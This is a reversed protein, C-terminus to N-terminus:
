ASCWAAATRDAALTTGYLFGDSAQLLAGAPLAGGAFTEDDSTFPHVTYLGFWEESRDLEFITGLQIPENSWLGGYDSTTGRFTTPSTQILAGLPTDGNGGGLHFNFHYAVTWPAGEEAPPILQFVTGGPVRFYPDEAPTEDGNPNGGLMTTGYFTWDSALLLSSAPFAGVPPPVYGTSYPGEFLPGPEFNESGFSFLVEYGSPDIAFVTGWDHAGGKLTTGYLRDDPGLILASAPNAGDSAVGPDGFHHLVTLAAPTQGADLRFLTGVGNAGGGLTVGFFGGDVVEILAANSGCGEPPDADDDFIHLVEAPAGATAMRFIVGCNAPGGELTTGYFAGDAAQILSGVPHRGDPGSFEYLKSYTQAATPAVPGFFLALLWMVSLIPRRM